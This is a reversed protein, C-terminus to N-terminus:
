FRLREEHLWRLAHGLSVAWATKPIKSTDPQPPSGSLTSALSSRAGGPGDALEGPVALGAIDTAADPASAIKESKPLKM